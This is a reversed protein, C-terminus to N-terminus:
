KEMLGVALRPAKKGNSLTEKYRRSNLTLM